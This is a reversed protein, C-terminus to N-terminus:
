CLSDPDPYYNSKSIIKLNANYRHRIFSENYSLLTDFFLESSKFFSCTVSEIDNKKKM